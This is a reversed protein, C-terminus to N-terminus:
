WLGGPHLASPDSAVDWLGPRCLLSPAQNISLRWRATDCGRTVWSSMTKETYRVSYRVQQAIVPRGWPSPRPHRTCRRLTWAPLSPIASSPYTPATGRLMGAGWGSRPIWACCAKWWTGCRNLFRTNNRIRSTYGPDWIRIKVWGSDRIESGQDWFLLWLCPHFFIQQWEKKHLWMVFNFIIKTKFHQFFNKKAIKLSNNLKKDLFNDSLEWFYLNPIRSGLDPIRSWLDPIRFSDIGSGPDLPWFPVPDRIRIRLM